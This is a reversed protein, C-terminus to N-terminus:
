AVLSGNRRTLSASLLGILMLVFASPEPVSVMAITEQIWDIYPNILIGGFLSGFAGDPSGALQTFYPYTFTNIAALEFKGTTENWIFSPGGSDGGGIGSEIGEGLWSSCVGFETCSSDYSTGTQGNHGDFDAYWVEAASSGEDDYEVFDVINAGAYKSHFNLDLVGSVEPDTYYGNVGDGTTGYGVMNFIDGDQGTQETSQVLGSYLDYITVNDPADNALTIIAIDDNLCGYSGDSCNGFGQYDEHIRISDAVNVSSIDQDHNFISDVYNQGIDLSIETGTGDADVCHAATLIHRKSIATGSCISGQDDNFSAISVVGNFPSSLNNQDIKKALNEEATLAGDSNGGTITPTIKNVDILGASVNVSLLLIGSLGFLSVKNKLFQM